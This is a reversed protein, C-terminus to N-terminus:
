FVLPMLKTHEVKLITAMRRAILENHTSMILGMGYKKQYSLLLNIVLDGTQEDLNGTPEDVLLFQPVIFIARLIAVRQQQGGSLVWPYASAKDALGVQELLNYAHQYSTDTLTGSLIGKLMVNELVTLEQFLAAQQFVLSVNHHLFSTKQAASFSTLSQGKFCVQGANPNDLGALMHICTSKGSGSVGMIAYCNGQYFDFSVDDFIHTIFNQQHYFKTVGILSLKAPM